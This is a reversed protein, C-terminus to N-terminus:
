EVFANRLEMCANLFTKAEDDTLESGFDALLGYKIGSSCLINYDVDTVSSVVSGYDGYVNATTEIINGDKVAYGKIADSGFNCLIATASTESFRKTATITSDYYKCCLINGGAVSASRRVDGTRVGVEIGSGSIGNEVIAVACFASGKLDATLNPYNNAPMVALGNIIELAGGQDVMNRYSVPLHVGDNKYDLVINSRTAGIIPIFITRIKSWIGTNGIAGVQYFFHNLALKQSDTLSENGSKSIADLTFQQMTEVVPLSDDNVVAKLRTILCNNAM